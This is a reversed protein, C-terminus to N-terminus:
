SVHRLREHVAAPLENCVEEDRLWSLAQVHRQHCRGYLLGSSCPCARDSRQTAGLILPWLAEFAAQSTIRLREILHQAYAARPGHPWEPGPWRGLDDFVFQDRLFPVLRLLFERFGDPTTVDPTDVHALSLCFEHDVMLHRDRDPKWRRAHDYVRPPWTPYSPDFDMRIAVAAWCGAGIDIDLVGDAYASEGGVWIYHSMRPLVDALVARDLEFRQLRNSNPTHGSALLM